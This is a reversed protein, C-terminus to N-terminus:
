RFFPYPPKTNCLTSRNNVLLDQFSLFPVRIFAPLRITCLVINSFAEFIFLCLFLLVIVWGFVLIQAVLDRGAALALPCLSM